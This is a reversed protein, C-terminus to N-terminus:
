TDRFAASRIEAAHRKRRVARRLFCDSRLFFHAPFLLERHSIDGRRAGCCAEITSLFDVVCVVTGPLTDWVGHQPLALHIPRAPLVADLRQIGDMEFVHPIESQRLVGLRLWHELIELFGSFLLNIRSACVRIPTGSCLCNFRAAALYNW